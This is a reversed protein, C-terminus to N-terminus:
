TEVQKRKVVKTIPHLIKSVFAMFFYFKKPNIHNPTSFKLKEKFDSDPIKM